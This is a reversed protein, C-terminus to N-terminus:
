TKSALVAATSANADRPKVQIVRLVNSARLENTRNQMKLLRKTEQVVITEGPMPFSITKKLSADRLRRIREAKSRRQVRVVLQVSGTDHLSSLSSPLPDSDTATSDLVRYEREHEDVLQGVGFQSYNQIRSEEYAMNARSRSIGTANLIYADQPLLFAYPPAGFMSRLRPWSKQDGAVRLFLQRQQKFPLLTYFRDRVNSDGQIPRNNPTSAETAIQIQEVILDHIFELADGVTTIRRDNNVVQGSDQNEERTQGTEDDEDSFM